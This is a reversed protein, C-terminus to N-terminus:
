IIIGIHFGEGKELLAPVEGFVAGSVAKDEVELPAVEMAGPTGVRLAHGNVPREEDAVFMEKVGSTGMASDLCVVEVTGKAKGALVASAKCFSVEADM